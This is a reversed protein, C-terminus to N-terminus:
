GAARKYPDPPFWSRDIIAQAWGNLTRVVQPLEDGIADVVPQVLRDTDEEIDWRLQRGEDTLKGDAALGRSELGAFEADMAEASWGRTATYALPEWGVMLETLINASLGNLGNSVCVALHGDGRHERLMTCVHWLQGLPREPWPLASLGAHMPRGYSNAAALGRRLVGIAADLGDPEAIVQGLSCKARASDYLAAILGPEFVGFASAVVSGEPEGLVSSRAWVYGELFDLGLEAYRQYAPESWFCITAIPEIADRLSRAPTQWASTGPDPADGGRPQFFAAQAEAYDM